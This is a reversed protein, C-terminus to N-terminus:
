IIDNPKTRKDLEQLFEKKYEDFGKQIKDEFEAPTMHANMDETLGDSNIVVKSAETYAKKLMQVDLEADRIWSLANARVKSKAYEHYKGQKKLEHETEITCDFCMGNSKRMTEDLPHPKVCLCTEKRCNPFSRIYDRAQQLSDSNKSKKVRFGDRQEVITIIETVPDIEEWVDGIEHHESKKATYAADSFGISKKTQFKHTGDIMQQVAKINQLKNQKAM